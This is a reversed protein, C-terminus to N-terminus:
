TAGLLAKIIMYGIIIVIIAKIIDLITAAFQGKKRM